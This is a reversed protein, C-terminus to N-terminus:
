YKTINGFGFAFLRQWKATLGSRAIWLFIAFIFSDSLKSFVKISSDYIKPLYIKNFIFILISGLSQRRRSLVHATHSCCPVCLINWCNCQFFALCQFILCSSLMAVTGSREKSQQITVTYRTIIFHSDFDLKIQNLNVCKKCLNTKSFMYRPRWTKVTKSQMPLPSHM